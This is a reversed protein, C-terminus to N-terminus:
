KRGGFLNLDGKRMRGWYILVMGIIQGGTILFEAIQETGLKVGARDALWVVVSVIVGTITLSM